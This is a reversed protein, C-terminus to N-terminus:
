LIYCLLYNQSPEKSNHNDCCSISDAFGLCLKARDAPVTSYVSQAEASSYSVGM